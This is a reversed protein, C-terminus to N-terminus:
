LIVLHLYSLKTMIFKISTKKLNIKIIMITYKTKELIQYQKLIGYNFLKM